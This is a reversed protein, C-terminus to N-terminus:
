FPFRVVPKILRGFRSVKSSNNVLTTEENPADLDKSHRIAYAPKLRDISVICTYLDEIRSAFINKGSTAREKSNFIFQNIKRRLERVFMNNDSNELKMPEFFDGPLRIAEGYVKEAPSMKTDDRLSAKLGMLVTTSESVCQETRGRCM